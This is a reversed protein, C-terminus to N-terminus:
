LEGILKELIKAFKTHSNFAFEGTIMWKIPCILFLSPWVWVLNLRQIVSTKDTYPDSFHYVIYDGDEDFLLDLVEKAASRNVLKNEIQFRHVMKREQIFMM